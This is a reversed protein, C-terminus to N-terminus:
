QCAHIYSSCIMSLRLRPCWTITNTCLRLSVPLVPRMRASSAAFFPSLLKNSVSPSSGLLPRATRSTFLHTPPMPMLSVGRNAPTYTLIHTPDDLSIIDKPHIIDPKKRHFNATGRCCSVQLGACMSSSRCESWQTHDFEHSNLVTWGVCGALKNCGLYRPRTQLAPQPLPLQMNHHDAQERSYGVTAKIPQVWLTCCSPELLEM